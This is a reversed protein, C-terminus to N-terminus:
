AYLEYPAKRTIYRQRAEAYRDILQPGTVEGKRYADTALLQDIYHTFVPETPQRLVVHGVSNDTFTLMDPHLDRIHDLLTVALRFSEVSRKERVIIQLGNCVEGAFKSGSPKFYVRAFDVGPLGEKQMRERLADANLWPAGVLEFPKSTGRGESLNGIGELLCLGAYLLNADTGPLSPSPLLWPLDTDDFYLDRRWGELPIVTLDCGIGYAGNVYRAFEGITLATRTALEYDGVITHMGPPCVTGEVQLGGLPTVRDLVVMAKKQAACAKLIAACCHLYEFFRVGAERADFVIADLPALMEPTPALYDPNFISVVPMGTVDDPYVPIDEGYRYEGRIGMVTNLLADVQYREVLVDVSHQLQRNVVGGSSVVGLRRGKLAQDMKDTRDIGQLVKHKM